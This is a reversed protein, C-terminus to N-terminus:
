LLQMPNCKVAYIFNLRVKRHKGVVDGAPNFVLCTNFVQDQADIEPISGGVLWLGLARAKSQLM